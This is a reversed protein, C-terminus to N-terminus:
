CNRKRYASGQFNTESCDGNARKSRKEKFVFSKTRRRKVKIYYSTEKTEKIENVRIRTMEITTYVNM